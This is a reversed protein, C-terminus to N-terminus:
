ARSRRRRREGQDPDVRDLFTRATDAVPVLNRRLAKPLSRILEAVLEERLGPVQWDFGIPQVQNLVAVPIHVAVGDETSGPEFAYSLGFTLDGQIWEAPFADEDLRTSRRCHDDATFALLDPQPRAKKWWSDFHRGVGRGRCAGDYIRQPRRPGDSRRAVCRSWGELGRAPGPQRRHLPPPEGSGEVLAHRVFLERRARDVKAGV